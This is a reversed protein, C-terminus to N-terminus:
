ESGREETKREWLFRLFRIYNAGGHVNTWGSKRSKEVINIFGDSTNVLVVLKDNEVNKNLEKGILSGFFTSCFLLGNRSCM